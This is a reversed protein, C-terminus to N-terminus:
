LPKYIKVIVHENNTCLETKFETMCHESDFTRKNLKCRELLQVYSFQQCM